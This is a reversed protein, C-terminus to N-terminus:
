LLLLLLLLLLVGGGLGSKKSTKTEIVSLVGFLVWDGGIDGAASTLPTLFFDVSFITICFFLGFDVRDFHDMDYSIIVGRGSGYLLIYIAIMMHLLINFLKIGGGGM